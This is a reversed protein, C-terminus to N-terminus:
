AAYKHRLKDLYRKSDASVAWADPWFCLDVCWWDNPVGCALLEPILQDFDLIGKGFPVHRSSNYEHIASVSTGRHIDSSM